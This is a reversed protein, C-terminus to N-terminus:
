GSWYRISWWSASITQGASLARSKGGGGPHPSPTTAPVPESVDIDILTAVEPPPAEDRERSADRWSRFPVPLQALM